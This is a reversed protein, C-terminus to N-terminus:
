LEGHEGAGIRQIYAPDMHKENCAIEEEDAVQVRRLAEEIQQRCEPRRFRACPERSTITEPAVRNVPKAATPNSRRRFHLHAPTELSRCM